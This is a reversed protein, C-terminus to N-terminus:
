RKRCMAEPESSRFFTRTREAPNKWSSASCKTGKSKKPRSRPRRDYDEILLMLLDMLRNEDATRRKQKGILDALRSGLREYLEDDGDAIRQPLTERLLDEYSTTM